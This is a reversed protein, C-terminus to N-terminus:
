RYLVPEQLLTTRIVLLSRQCQLLSVPGTTGSHVSSDPIADSPAQQLAHHCRAILMREATSSDCRHYPRHREDVQGVTSHQLPSYSLTCDTDRWQKRPPGNDCKLSLLIHLKEGVTHSTCANSSPRRGAWERSAEGPVPQALGTDYEAVIFGRRHYSITTDYSAALRGLSAASAVFRVYVRTAEGCVIGIETSSWHTHNTHTIALIASTSSIGDLIIHDM